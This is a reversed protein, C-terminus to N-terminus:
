QAGGAIWDRIKAVLGPELLVPANLPMHTRVEGGDELAPACRSVVQYLWSDEPSGPVVLRREPAGVVTAELLRERLDDGRLSLGAAPVAGGHCASFNCSAEFIDARITRFDVPAEAVADPPTDVCETIPSLDRDAESPDPVYLEAEMETEGPLSQAENKPVALATCETVYEIYDGHDTVNDESHNRVGGEIMVRTDVLGLFECMEQDGIGYGVEEDRTNNYGCTVRLGDTGTLDIPPDFVVGNAEANFGAMEMITEGDRPGGMIEVRFFNGMSHYHPLLYYLKMDFDSGSAQRYIESLACEGTHRSQRQPPIHLDFYGLHLPAVVTQVLRPHILGFSMRLSTTMARSSLNLFHTGAVVRHRPPIKIVVGEPLQQVEDRSQTSQAFIVAGSVASTLEDFGRSGCDFFGDPGDYMEEPVVFWNSHHSAGENYLTITNVYLAEDNNIRWTVCPTVEEFGELDINPFQHTVSRRDPDLEPMPLDANENLSAAERGCGLSWLVILALFGILGTNRRM